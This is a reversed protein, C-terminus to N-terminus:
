FGLTPLEEQVAALFCWVSALAIKPQLLRYFFSSVQLSCFCLM